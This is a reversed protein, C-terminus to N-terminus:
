QVATLNAYTVNWNAAAATAQITLVYTANAVEAAPTLTAGITGDGATIDGAVGGSVQQATGVISGTLSGQRIRMTVATTAAQVAFVASGNFNIPYNSGRSNVNSLTAIVTETTTTISQTGTNTTQAIQPFSTPGPM